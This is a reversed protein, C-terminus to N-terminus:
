RLNREWERRKNQDKPVRFLAIKPADKKLVYCTKCGPTYCHNHPQVPMKRFRLDWESIEWVMDVRDFGCIAVRAFSVVRVHVVLVVFNFCMCVSLTRIRDCVSCQDRRDRRRTLWLSLVRRQCQCSSHLAHRTM